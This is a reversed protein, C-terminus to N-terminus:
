KTAGEAKAPSAPAEATPATSTKAPAAQAPGAVASVAIGPRIEVAEGPKLKLQGDVVVQEGAKLGDAIVTEDELKRSITVVRDSVKMDPGIVYVYDGKQGSLLARSPIVLAHPQEELVIVVDVYLGPWLRLNKNAFTAKVMISGTTRDVTNDVFTLEGTEPRDAQKAPYAQVIVKHAAMAKQIAPLDSQPVSVSVQIPQIQNITVLPLDNAKILSGKDIMWAGARGDFPANIQCYGIDLKARAIAANDSQMAATLTEAAAKATDYEGQSAVGKKLLEEQRALEKKANESQAIDRALNAQAQRLSEEYPRPDITFLPEGQRVMRGEEFHVETLLGGIQAKIAATLNAEVAGFTRIEVPMTKEVATAAEVPVARPAPPPPAPPQCGAQIVLGALAVAALAAARRGWQTFMSNSMVTHGRKLKM